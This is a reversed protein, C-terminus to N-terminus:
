RSMSLPLRLAQISESTCSKMGGRGSTTYLESLTRLLDLPGNDKVEETYKTLSTGEVEIKPHKLGTINASFKSTNLLSEEKLSTKTDSFTMNKLLNGDADMRTM